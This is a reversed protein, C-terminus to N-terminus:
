TAFAYESSQSRQLLVEAPSLYQLIKRPRHNLKDEVTRIQQPTLNLLSSKKPFYQRVLGNTHENLGREWSHYPTAFFFQCHLREAIKLHGAFEKGNDSTITLLLRQLPVNMEKELREFCAIIADIVGQSSKDRLPALLTMKSCRDVLSLIAGQHRAGVILDAEWDGIRTKTEVVVDREKIDIRGPICGRGAKLGRRRYPKARHRLHQYLRGGQAKDAWILQYIWEHSVSLGERKLRGSIQEPSADEELWELVRARVVPSIQRPRAASAKRRAASEQAAYGFYSKGPLSNRRLERSITSQSVQVQFGIEKQTAGIARLHGIQSRQHCTLHTSM